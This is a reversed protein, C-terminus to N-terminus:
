LVIGEFSNQILPHIRDRDSIESVNLPWRIDFKKDAYNLGREHEKNYPASHLYILECGDTLTQFGHAFGEPILFSKQNNESLIEAHWNLYTHSNKRLDIAVDFIEGKICTVLKVEAFPPLQYHLGRITGIKKTLTQNIQSVPKNFGMLKFDAQCYLRSLFGRDDSILKRQIIKLDTIPTDFLDFM